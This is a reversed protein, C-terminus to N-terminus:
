GQPPRWTEVLKATGAAKFEQWSDIQVEVRALGATPMPMYKGTLAALAQELDPNHALIMVSQVADPLSPLATFYAESGNGYFDDRFQIKGPYGSKEVVAEVTQRARVASSCLILDPLLNQNRLYKGVEPAEHKGRKNLPREHDPLDSDKWSSKAHRLLLLTKM